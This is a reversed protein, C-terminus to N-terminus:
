TVMFSYFNTDAPNISNFPWQWVQAEAMPPDLFRQQIPRQRIVDVQARLAALDPNNELAEQLLAALSVRPGTPAAETHVMAPPQQSQESPAARLHMSTTGVLGMWLLFVTVRTRM